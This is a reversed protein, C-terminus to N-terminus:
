EVHMSKVMANFAEEQADMTAKPGVAKFAWLGDATMCLAGLMRYNDKPPPAEGGFNMAIPNYQGVVSVTAIKLPGVEVDNRTVAEAPVPQGDQTFQKEWRMINGDIGGAMGSLFFVALEGDEADGEAKPLRYQAMRMQGAPPMEIWADAVAWKLTGAPGEAAGGAAGSAGEVPPHGPPLEPMVPPHSAPMQPSAPMQRAAEQQSFARVSALEDASPQTAASNAGTSAPAAPPQQECGALIVTLAIAAAVSLPFRHM